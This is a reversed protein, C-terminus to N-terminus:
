SALIRRQCKWFFWTLCLNAPIVEYLVIKALPLLLSDSYIYSAILFIDVIRITIFVNLWLSPNKKWFLLGVFQLLAYIAWFYALHILLGQTDIYHSDGHQVAFWLHPFFFGILALSSDIAILGMLIFPLFKRFSM